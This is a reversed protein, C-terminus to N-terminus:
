SRWWKTRAVARAHLQRSAANFSAGRDRARLIPLARLPELQALIFAAQFDGADHMAQDISGLPTKGLTDM